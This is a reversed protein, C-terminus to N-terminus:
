SQEEMGGQIDKAYGSYSPKSEKENYGEMKADGMQVLCVKGDSELKFTCVADFTEGMQVNEPMAFDKPATFTVKAM